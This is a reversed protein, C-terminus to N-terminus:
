KKKDLYMGDFAVTHQYPNMYQITNKKKKQLDKIDKKIDSFLSQLLDQFQKELSAIKQKEEVSYVELSTSKIKGIYNDRIALIESVKEIKNDRDLNGNLIDILKETVDILQSSPKTM